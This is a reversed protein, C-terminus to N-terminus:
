ASALGICIVGSAVLGLGLWQLYSLSEGYVGWAALALCVYFGAGCTASAVGLKMRAILMMWLLYGLAQVALSLYIVPSKAASLVFAPLNNLTPAIGLGVLAYKLILQGLVANLTIAIILVTTPV